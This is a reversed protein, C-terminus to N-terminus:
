ERTKNANGAAERETNQKLREIEAAQRKVLGLAERKLDIVCHGAGKVFLPCSPCPGVNCCELAKIIESDTM